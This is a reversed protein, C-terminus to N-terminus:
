KEVISLILSVFNFSKVALTMKIVVPTKKDVTPILDKDYKCLLDKRLHGEINPPDM